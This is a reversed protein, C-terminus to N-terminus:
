SGVLSSHPVYSTSELYISGLKRDQLSPCRPGRIGLRDLVMSDQSVAEIDPKGKRASGYGM